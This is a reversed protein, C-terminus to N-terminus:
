GKSGGMCQPSDAATQNRELWEAPTFLHLALAHVGNALEHALAEYVSQHRKVLTMEAFQDSVLILKFHTESNPPVSHQHSENIVALDVPMFAATLKTEIASQISM